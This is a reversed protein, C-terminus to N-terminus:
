CLVAAQLSGGPRLWGLHTITPLVIFRLRHLSGTFQLRAGVGTTHWLLRPMGQGEKCLGIAAVAGGGPRACRTWATELGDGPVDGENRLLDM